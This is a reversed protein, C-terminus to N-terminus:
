GKQCKKIKLHLPLEFRQIFEKFSNEDWMQYSPAIIKKLEHITMDEYFVNDDYVFGIREKIAVQNKQPNLGFISIDGSDKNILNM